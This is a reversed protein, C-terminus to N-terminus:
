RRGGIWSVGIIRRKGQASSVELSALGGKTDLRMVQQGYATANLGLGVQHQYSASVPGASEQAVRPDRIAYFHASLWRELLELRPADYGLPACIETILANAAEIFPSIDGANITSDIEIIKQVAEATTRM